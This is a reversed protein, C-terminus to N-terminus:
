LIYRVIYEMNKGYDLEFEYIYMFFFECLQYYKIGMNLIDLILKNGFLLM